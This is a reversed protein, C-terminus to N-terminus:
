IPKLNGFDLFHMKDIIITPSYEKIFGQEEINMGVMILYNRKLRSCEMIFGSTKTFVEWNRASASCIM